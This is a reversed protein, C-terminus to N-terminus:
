SKKSKESLWITFSPFHKHLITAANDEAHAYKLPTKNGTGVWHKVYRTVDVHNAHFGAKHMDRFWPVATDLNHEGCVGFAGPPMANGVPACLPRAKELNILCAWENVRCEPLPWPNVAFEGKFGDKDYPRAFIGKKRAQKYIECLQTHTPKTDLYREPSCASCNMVERMIGDNAAPCNWCQGVFGCAIADEIKDELVGIIDKFVFIDNHMIFLLRSNSKEFAYQYRIGMRAAPDDLIAKVVPQRALWNDPQSTEIGFPTNERLYQVIAYPSARDHRSGVPEYQLWIKNIHKGSEKILSLLSLATQYPKGFINVAVDIKGSAPYNIKDM